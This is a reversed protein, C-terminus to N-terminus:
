LVEVGGGWQSRTGNWEMLVYSLHEAVHWKLSYLGSAGCVRVGESIYLNFIKTGGSM